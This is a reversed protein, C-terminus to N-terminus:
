VAARAEATAELWAIVETALQEPVQLQPV